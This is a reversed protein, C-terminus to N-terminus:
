LKKILYQYEKMQKVRDSVAEQESYLYEGDFTVYELNLYHETDLLEKACSLVYALVDDETKFIYDEVLDDYLKDDFSVSFVM